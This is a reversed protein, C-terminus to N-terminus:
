PEDDDDPKDEIKMLKVAFQLDAGAFPHNADLIVVEGEEDVDRIVAANGNSLAVTAGPHLGGKGPQDLEEVLRQVEPHNMPVKFLLSPDYKGGSASVLAQDGVVMGQVAKDFALFLPNGMSDAAGVEFTLPEEMDDMAQLLEGEETQASFVISVLDGAVPRRADQLEEGAPLKSVAMTTEFGKVKQRVNQLMPASFTESVGDASGGGVEGATAAINIRRASRRRRSSVTPRLAAAASSHLIAASM